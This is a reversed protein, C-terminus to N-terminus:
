LDVNPKLQHAGFTLFSICILIVKGNAFTLGESRECFLLFFQYTVPEFQAM